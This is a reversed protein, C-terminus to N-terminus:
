PNPFPTSLLPSSAVHELVIQAVRASPLPERLKAAAKRMDQWKGNHALISDIAARLERPRHIRVACGHKELLDANGEEQGPVVYNIVMPCRATLAEHVTAGGAKGIVVHHSRMLRPVEDSWGLVEIDIQPHADTFRRVTHYLRKEHHGLVLTWRAKGGLCSPIEQLTQRVHRRSTCPFYLIRAPRTGPELACPLETLLPSVPFGTVTIRNSPIGASELERKSATDAVLYHDSPEAFWVSNISVSDTVM